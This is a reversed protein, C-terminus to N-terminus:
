YVDWCVSNDGNLISYGNDSFLQFSSCHTGLATNASPPKRFSFCGWEGPQVVKGLAVSQPIVVVGGPSLVKCTYDKNWSLYGSNLYCVELYLEDTPVFDKKSSHDTDGIKGVYSTKRVILFDPVETVRMENEAKLDGETLVQWYIGTSDIKHGYENYLSVERSHQGLSYNSYSVDFDCCGWNGTSVSSPLYYNEGAKVTEVSFNYNKTYTVDCYFHNNWTMSGDNLFCVQSHFSDSPKYKFGVTGDQSLIFKTKKVSLLPIEADSGKNYYLQPKVMESIEQVLNNRNDRQNYPIVENKVISDALLEIRADMTKQVAIIGPDCVATAYLADALLNTNESDMPLYDSFASYLFIVPLLFFFTVIVLKKM